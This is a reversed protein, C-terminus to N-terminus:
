RRVVGVKVFVKVLDDVEEVLLALFDDYELVQITVIIGMNELCEPDQHYRSTERVADTVFAEPGHCSAVENDGHWQSAM